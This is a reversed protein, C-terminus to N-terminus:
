ETAKLQTKYSVSVKKCLSCFTDLMQTRERIRKQQEKRRDQSQSRGIEAQVILRQIAVVDGDNRGPLANKLLAKTRETAALETAERLASEILVRTARDLRVVFDVLAQVSELEHMGASEKAGDINHYYFPQPNDPDLLELVRLIPDFKGLPRLNPPLSARHEWLALITQYCKQEAATKDAPKATEAIVIQEAIYHAMWKSLTDVGPDLGLLQVLQRGLETAKEQM